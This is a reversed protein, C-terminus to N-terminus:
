PVEPATKVMTRGNADPALWSPMCTPCDRVVIADGNRGLVKVPRGRWVAISEPPFTTQEQARYGKSVDMVACDNGTLHFPNPINQRSLLAECTNATKTQWTSWLKMAAVGCIFSVAVFVVTRITGSM